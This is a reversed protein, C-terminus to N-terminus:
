RSIGSGSVGALTPVAGFLVFDGTSQSHPISVDVSFTGSAPVKPATPGRASPLMDTLPAFLKGFTPLFIGLLWFIVYKLDTYGIETGIAGAYTALQPTALGWIIGFEDENQIYISNGVIVTINDGPHAVSPATIGTIWALTGPFSALTAAVVAIQRTGPVWMIKKLGAKPQILLISAKNTKEQFVHTL